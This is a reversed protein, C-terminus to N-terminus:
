QIPMNKISWRNFFSVFILWATRSSILRSDYEFGVSSGNGSVRCASQALSEDVFRFAKVARPTRRNFQKAADVVTGAM